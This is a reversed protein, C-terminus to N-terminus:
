AQGENKTHDSDPTVQCWDAASGGGIAQVAASIVYGPMESSRMQITSRGIHRVARPERDDYVSM